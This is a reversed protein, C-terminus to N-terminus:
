APRIRELTLRALADIEKLPLLAPVGAQAEVALRAAEVSAEDLGEENIAVAIVESGLLRIIEIEEAIAPIRCGLSEHDEFYERAPSHQLVVHRAGGSLLLESGCPGAPHRLAAQGEILIVDPETERQCALIAAELEGSVFDNPTADLIFGYPHGQLWGTQGTYVMESRAGLTRLADSLLSCTTRKGLACDTGLVAVRPTELALIDGTWFRLEGVPPPRRLDLLGGGRAEALTAVEADDALLQHLGNVLHIGHAAAALLETRVIEPLVGGVTAIGVVCHDPPAELGSLADEVSAFFPIDRPQGDLALGADRLQTSSGDVVGVIRYRSPGRVLGHSTKAFPTRFHDPALLLATETM